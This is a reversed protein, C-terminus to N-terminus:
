GGCHDLAERLVNLRLTQRVFQHLCSHVALLDLM